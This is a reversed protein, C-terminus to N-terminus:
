DQSCVGWNQGTIFSGGRHSTECTSDKLKPARGEDNTGLDACPDTVGCVDGSHNDRFISRTAVIRESWVGGRANDVIESDILVASANGDAGLGNNRSLVDKLRIRRLGQVGSRGNGELVSREVTAAVGAKVGTFGNDRSTLNVVKLNKIAVIGDQGPDNRERGQM